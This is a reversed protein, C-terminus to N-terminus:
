VRPVGAPRRVVKAHVSNILGIRAAVRAASLASLGALLNAGFFISGL